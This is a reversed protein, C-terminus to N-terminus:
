KRQGARGPSSPTVFVHLEKPGHVGITLTLEIDATRSPGSILVASSAERVERLHFVQPLNAYILGEELVAIHLEPLLSATLPRGRGAHILLSGTEAVGALAASVGAKLHPDPSTGIAIGAERLARLLGPPLQDEEWAAISEIARVRLLGLIRAPLEEVACFDLTGGLAIWERAFAEKLIAAPLTKRQAEPTRENVAAPQVANASNNESFRAHFPKLAPRPFDKSYGWGTFAPLRMWERRPSILRSFVGALRQALGFWRPRVALVAFARLCLLIVLSPHGNVASRQGSIASQQDSGGSRVRLLLKPLDIDVPCAEQCAGCLTSARALGGFESGFLAPSLVSGMPGPYPSGYAHGGIERFVPCANLCAGCRICYLIEALPSRRAASRGNDVVILHRQLAGDPEDARRPGHIISTYVTLKQGTASRPLLSLMLALDDFTPALREMGMLAIHVRPLTTVMRGNGENTLLVLAGSEVVGFNVGSIGVDASLFVERLAARAAATLAPINDTLPIGLKEHFLAGVEARSLHVAPTLIHSPPEHRLQVIYEGLDTEVVRMGAAELAHNLGIEESLMTKSKAILPQFTPLPLHSTSLPLSRNRPPPHPIAARAIEIVLRNAEAADAARHVIIGNAQVRELFRALYTDLNAIVDARVAHARQRLTQLDEPLSAFATQRSAIRREANANLAAQLAPNAISSRIRSHFSM